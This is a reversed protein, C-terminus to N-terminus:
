QHISYDNDYYDISIIALDFKNIRYIKMIYIFSYSINVIQYICLYSFQSHSLHEYGSFNKFEIEVWKRLEDWIIIWYYINFIHNRSLIIGDM